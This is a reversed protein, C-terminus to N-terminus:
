NLVLVVKGKKNSYKDTSVSLVLIILELCSQITSYETGTAEMKIPAYPM